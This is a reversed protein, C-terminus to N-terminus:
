GRKATHVVQTMYGISEISPVYGVREFFVGFFFILNWNGPAEADPLEVVRIHVAATPPFPRVMVILLCELYNLQIHKPIQVQKIQQSSQLHM